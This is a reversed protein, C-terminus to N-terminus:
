AEITTNLSKLYVGMSYSSRSFRNVVRNKRMIWEDNDANAGHLACHFLQQGNRCIDATVSLGADRAAQVLRMGLDLAMDNTFATFQITEEEQRLRALLEDYENM